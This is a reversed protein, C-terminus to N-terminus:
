YAWIYYYRQVGKKVHVLNENFDGLLSFRQGVQLSERELVLVETDTKVVMHHEGEYINFETAGSKFETVTRFTYDADLSLLKKGACILIYGGVGEVEFPTDDMPFTALQNFEHDFVTVDKMLKSVMFIQQTKLNHVFFIRDYYSNEWKPKVVGFKVEKVVTKEKLDVIKMKRLYPSYIGARERDFIRLKFPLFLYGTKAANYGTKIEEMHNAPYDIVKLDKESLIYLREQDPLYQLTFWPKRTKDYRIGDATVRVIEGIGQLGFLGYEGHATAVILTRDKRFWQKHTKMLQLQVEEVLQGKEMDVLRVVNKKDNEDILAVRHRNLAYIREVTDGAPVTQQVTLPSYTVRVISSKGEADETLVFLEGAEDPLVISKVRGALRLRESTKAVMDYHFLEQSNWDGPTRYAAFLHKGDVTRNWEYNGLGLEAVDKFSQDKLSFLTLKGNFNTSGNVIGLYVGSDATEVMYDPPNNMVFGEKFEDGSDELAFLKTTELDYLFHDNGLVIGSFAVLAFFVFLIRRM